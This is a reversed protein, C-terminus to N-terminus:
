EFAYTAVFGHLVTAGPDNWYTGVITNCDNLGNPSTGASGPYDFIYYHSGHLLAGHDVFGADYWVFDIDGRNSIGGALTGTAGPVNVDRVYDGTNLDYVSSGYNFDADLWEVTMLHKENIAWPDTDYVAQPADPLFTYSQTHIDYVYGHDVNDTGAYAGVVQDDDNIGVATTSVASPPLLDTLTGHDYVFGIYLGASNTYYCAMVGHNNIGYCVSNTGNPHDINIRQGNKLIAMGHLAGSADFYGGVMVGQDNISGLGTSTAGPVDVTQFKLHIKRAAASASM